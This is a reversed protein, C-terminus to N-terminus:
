LGFGERASAYTALSQMQQLKAEIEELAAMRQAVWELKQKLYDENSNISMMRKQIKPAFVCAYSVRPGRFRMPPSADVRLGMHGAAM